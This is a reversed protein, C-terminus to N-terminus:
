GVFVLNRALVLMLVLELGLVLVTWLSRPGWRRVAEGAALICAFPMLFLWIRGVEGRVSGSVILGLLLAWWGWALATGALPRDETERGSLSLATPALVAPGLLLLFDYPNWLLWTGYSRSAVAITHHQTVATRFSAWPDYGAFLALATWPLLFGASLLAAAKWSASWTLPRNAALALLGVLPVAALYGYSFFVALALLGGAPLARWRGGTESSASVALWAATLVLLPLAQDLSPTFVSRAPVALWLAAALLAAGPALGLGTALRHLPWAALTSALPLLFALLVLTGPAPFDRSTKRDHRDRLRSRHAVRGVERRLSAAAASVLGREGKPDPRLRRGLHDLARVALLPGPPHTRSHQNLGASAAPWDALLTRTDPALGADFVYGFTHRSALADFVRPFGGPQAWALLLPFTWGLIILLPLAWRWDTARDHAASYVLPLMLAAAWILSFGLGVGALGSPRYPWQWESPGNASPVHASILLILVLTAAALLVPFLARRM